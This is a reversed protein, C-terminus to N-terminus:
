SVLTKIKTALAHLWNTLQAVLLFYPTKLSPSPQGIVVGGAPSSTGANVAAQRNFVSKGRKALAPHAPPHTGKSTWWVQRM